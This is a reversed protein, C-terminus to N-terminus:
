FRLDFNRRLGIRVVTYNDSGQQVIPSDAASDLYHQWKAAGELWWNESLQYSAIVELSASVLGGDPDYADLGSRASESETVGFYTDTYHQSGFFVRPGFRIILRDTPRAVFNLRGESVWADSGGIGYRTDVIAEVNPWAYGVVGGIELTPDIDDMGKLEDYDDSDRASIWRFSLGYGFGRRRAYPDSGLAESGFKYPGFNLYGLGARASPGVIMEDSGFYAPNTQVGFFVSFFASLDRNQTGFTLTDPATAPATGQGATSQATVPLAALAFLACAAFGRVLSM